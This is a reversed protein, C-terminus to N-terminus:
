GITKLHPKDANLLIGDRVLSKLQDSVLTVAEALQHSNLPELNSLMLDIGSQVANPQHFFSLLWHVFSSLEVAAVGEVRPILLHVVKNSATYIVVDSDLVLRQTLWYEHTLQLLQKGEIEKRKRKYNLLSHGKISNHVDKKAKEVELRNKESQSVELTACELWVDFLSEAHLAQNNLSEAFTVYQWSIQHVHYNAQLVQAQIQVLSDTLKPYNSDCNNPLAPHLISAVKRPSDVRLLFYGVGAQGNLLGCEFENRPSGSRYFGEGSVSSLAETALQTSLSLWQEGYGLRTAELFLDAEGGRGHCLSYSKAPRAVSRATTRLALNVEALVTDDGTSSRLRALAIGMAGHCWANMFSPTTFYSEDGQIYSHYFKEGSDSDYIGLRWDAWNGHNTNLFQREYRNAERVVWRLEPAAFYHALEGLVFSIGAAGHSFGCLNRISNDRNDWCLGQSSIIAASVIFRILIRLQELLKPQPVHHYLHTFALLTGATGAILECKAGPEPGRYRGAINLAEHVWHSERSAAYLKCLAFVISPTGAYLGDTPLLALRSPQLCWRLAAKATNLFPLHQTQEYLAILFLAIGPNGNYMDPQLPRNALVQGSKSLDTWYAGEGDYCALGLLQQGIRIAESRFATTLPLDCM